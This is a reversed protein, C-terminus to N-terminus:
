SAFMRLHSREHQMQMIEITPAFSWMDLYSQNAADEAAKVLLPKLHMYILQAQTHDLRILRLSAGLVNAVFSYLEVLAAEEPGLGLSAALCGFAVAFNGPTRDNLAEEGYRAALANDTLSATLKVLSRGTRQSNLAGEWALKMGWLHQDIGLIKEFDGEGFARVTEAAACAESPGIIAEIYDSLLAELQAPTKLRGLEAFREIGHSLTYRGSPFFADGLQLATLLSAAGGTFTLESTSM